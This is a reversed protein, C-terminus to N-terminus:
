LVPTTYDAINFMGDVFQFSATHNMWLDTMMIRPMMIFSHLVYCQWFVFLCVFSVNYMAIVCTIVVSNMMMMMLLLLLLLMTMTADWRYEYGEEEEGPADCSLKVPAFSHFIWYRETLHTGIENLFAALRDLLSSGADQTQCWRLEGVDKKLATAPNDVLLEVFYIKPCQIQIVATSWNTFWAGEDGRCFLLYWVIPPQWAVVGWPFSHLISRWGWECWLSAAQVTSSNTPTPFIHPFRDRSNGKLFSRNIQPFEVRFENQSSLALEFIKNQSWEEVWESSM